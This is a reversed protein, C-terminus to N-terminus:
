SISGGALDYKRIRGWVALLQVALISINAETIAIRMWFVVALSGEPAECSDKRKILMDGRYLITSKM